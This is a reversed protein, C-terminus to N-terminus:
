RLYMAMELLSCGSELMDLDLILNGPWRRAPCTL